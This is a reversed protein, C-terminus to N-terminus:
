SFVHWSPRAFIMQGSIKQFVPTKSRGKIADTIKQRRGHEAVQLAYFSGKKWKMWSM